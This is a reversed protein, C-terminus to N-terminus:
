ALLVCRQAAIPGQLKCSTAQFPMTFMGSTRTRAHLRQRSPTGRGVREGGVAARAHPLWRGPSM